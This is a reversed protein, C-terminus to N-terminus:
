MKKCSFFYPIPVSINSIPVPFKFANELLFPSKTGTRKRKRSRIRNWNRKPGSQSLASKSM